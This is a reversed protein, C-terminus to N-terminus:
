HTWTIPAVLVDSFAASVEAFGGPGIPAQTKIKFLISGPGPQFMTFDGMIRATHSGGNIINGSPLATADPLYGCDGAKPTDCSAKIGVVSVYGSESVDPVTYQIAIGGDAPTPIPVTSDPIPSVLSLAGEPIPVMVKTVTGNGEVYAFEYMGGPAKRPCARSIVRYDPTVDMGNCLLRANQAAFVRETSSGEYLSVSVQVLNPDDRGGYEESITIALRLQSAPQRTVLPTAGCALIALLLTLAPLWRRRRTGRPGRASDSNGAEHAAVPAHERILFMAADVM